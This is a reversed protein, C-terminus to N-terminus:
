TGWTLNSQSDISVTRLPRPHGGGDVIKPFESASRAKSSVSMSVRMSAADRANILKPIESPGIATSPPPETCAIGSQYSGYRALSILFSTASATLKKNHYKKKSGSEAELTSSKVSHRATHRKDEVVVSSNLFSELQRDRIGKEILIDSRCHKSSM